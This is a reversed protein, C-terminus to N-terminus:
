AKACKSESTKDDIVVQTTCLLIQTPIKKTCNIFEAFQWVFFFLCFLMQSPLIPVFVIAMCHRSIELAFLHFLLQVYRFQHSGHAIRKPWKLTSWFCINDRFPLMRNSRILKNTPLLSNWWCLINERGLIKTYNTFFITLVIWCSVWSFEQYWCGSSHLEAYPNSDNCVICPLLWMRQKCCVLSLCM